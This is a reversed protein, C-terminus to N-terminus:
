GKESLTGKEEKGEKGEKDRYLQLFTANSYMIDYSFQRMKENVVHNWFQDKKILGNKM